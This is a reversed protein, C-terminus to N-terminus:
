LAREQFLTFAQEPTRVSPAEALELLPLYRDVCESRHLKTVGRAAWQLVAKRVEAVNDPLLEDALGTSVRQRGGILSWVLQRDSADLEEIGAEQEIVEPGNLGLRGPATVLIYSCLMAAISMGGFCGVMGAIVCIVPVLRRIAVIESQIESILELGLNAEQLRVGGTELLLVPIRLTGQELDRRTLRLAEAIKVGSVEGISGGQFGGEVAIVVANKSNLLGQAIVVGDDAQAVTGQRGLWPSTVCEFPGLIERFSDPDLLRRARERARLEVFSEPLQLSPM